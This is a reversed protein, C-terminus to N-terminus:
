GGRRTARLLLRIMAFMRHFLYDVHENMSIETKGVETHRIMFSNGINTLTVAENELAARFNPEPSANDLLIEVSQRKDNADLTKLREWADWIKELAESRVAPDPDLFKRRATELLEDLKGDGTQFLADSLAERVIAPALRHINGTEELEFAIGNRAFVRNVEECFLRKGEAEDLNLHHHMYYDHYAGRTAKAVKEYCFEVLDWFPSPIQDNMELHLGLFHM